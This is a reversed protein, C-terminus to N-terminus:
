KWAPRDFHPLVWVLAVSFPVSHVFSVSNRGSASVTSPALQADGLTDLLWLCRQWACAKRRDLIPDAHGLYNGTGGFRQRLFLLLLMSHDQHAFGADLTGRAQRRSVRVWEQEHPFSHSMHTPPHESLFISGVGEYVKLAIGPQGNCLKRM